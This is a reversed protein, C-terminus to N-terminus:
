DVLAAKLANVPHVNGIFAFAEIGCNSEDISAVNKAECRRVFVVFLEGSRGCQGGVVAQAFGREFETVDVRYDGCGSPTLVSGRKAPVKSYGCVLYDDGIVLVHVGCGQCGCEMTRCLLEPGAVANQEDRGTCADGGAGREVPHRRSLTM